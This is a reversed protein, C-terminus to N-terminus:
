NVVPGSWKGMGGPLYAANKFGKKGLLRAGAEGMGGTHCVLIIFKNKDLEQYRKRFDAFPINTSNPIHGKEYLVSERVDVITVNSKNIKKLLDSQNISQVEQSKAVESNDKLSVGSASENIFISKNMFVLVFSILLLAVIVALTMRKNM